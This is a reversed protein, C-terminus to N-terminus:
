FAWGLDLGVPIAVDLRSLPFDVYGRHSHSRAFPVIAGILLRVAFGSGRASANTMVPGVDFAAGDVTETDLGYDEYVVKSRGMHRYGVTSSLQLVWGEGGSNFRHLVPAVGGRLWADADMAFSKEGGVFSVLAGAGVEVTFLNSLEVGLALAGFHVSNATAPSEGFGLTIGSLPAELWLRVLTEAPASPGESARAPSSASVASAALAAVAKRM